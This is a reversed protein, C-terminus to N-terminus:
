WFMKSFAFMLYGLIIIGIIMGVSNGSNRHLLPNNERELCTVVIILATFGLVAVSGISKYLVNKDLIVDWIALVGLLALVSVSVILLSLTAKRIGKFIPSPIVLAANQDQLSRAEVFRGAVMVIVAVVALLGLTEFSKTIVDKNFFDWIGLISVLGLICVATIFFTAAINQINKM